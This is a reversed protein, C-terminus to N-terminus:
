DIFVVGACESLTTVVFFFFSLIVGFVCGALLFLMWDMVFGMVLGCRLWAGM